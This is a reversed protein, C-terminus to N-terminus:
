KFIRCLLPYHDSLSSQVMKVDSIVLGKAVINDLAKGTSPYTLYTGDNAMTYGANVFADFESFSAVNWDGLMVVYPYSSYKTILESIQAATLVGPRNNDFALHTVVMKISVGFAYVDASIYRYDQATVLNTHTITENELCDFDNIQVNYIPIRPAGFMAYCAYNMQTSEFVTEMFNFLEDKTNVDVNSANKGFVASYEVIGYIDPNATSLLARFGDVKAPYQESTITSNKKVGLSFHGINYSFLSLYNDIRDIRDDLRAIDTVLGTSSLISIQQPRYDTNVSKLYVYLYVADSPVLEVEESGSAGFAKYASWGTAFDVANGLSVGSKVFAFSGGGSSVLKCYRGCYQSIDVLGGYYQDVATTEWNGTAGIRSGCSTISSVDISVSGGGFVADGLVVGQRASLAKDAGGTVLDDIVSIGSPM